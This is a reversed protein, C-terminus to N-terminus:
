DKPWAAAVAADRVDFRRRVQQTLVIYPIATADVYRRQTQPPAESHAPPFGNLSPSINEADGGPWQNARHLNHIAQSGSVLPEVAGNAAAAMEPHCAAISSFDCM